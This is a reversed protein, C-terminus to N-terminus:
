QAGAKNAYINEIDTWSIDPEDLCREQRRTRYIRLSEMAKGRISSRLETAVAKVMDLRALIESADLLAPNEMDLKNLAKVARTLQELRDVEAEFANFSTM